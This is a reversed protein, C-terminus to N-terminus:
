TNTLRSRLSDAYLRYVKAEAEYLEAIAPPMKEYSQAVGEFYLVREDLTKVLALRSEILSIESIVACCKGYEHRLLDSVTGVCSDDLPEGGGDFLHKLKGHRGLWKRM